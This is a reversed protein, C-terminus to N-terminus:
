TFRTARWELMAFFGFSVQKRTRFVTEMIFSARSALLGRRLIDARVAAAYDSIEEGHGRADQAILDANVFPLELKALFSRYFTTKGAGNSGALVLIAPAERQTRRLLTRRLFPTLGRPRGRETV